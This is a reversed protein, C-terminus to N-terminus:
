QRLSEVQITESELQETRRMARPFVMNTIISRAKAGRKSAAKKLRAAAAELEEIRRAAALLDIGFSSPDARPATLGAPEPPTTTARIPHSPPPTRTFAFRVPTSPPTPLQPELTYTPMTSKDLKPPLIPSSAVSPPTAKPHTSQRKFWGKARRLRGRLGGTSDISPPKPIDPSITSTASRIKSSM